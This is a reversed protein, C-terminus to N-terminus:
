DETAGGSSPRVLLQDTCHEARRCQRHRWWRALGCGCRAFTHWQLGLVSRLVAQCRAWCEFRM